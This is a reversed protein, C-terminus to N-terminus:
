DPSGMGPLQQVYRSRPLRGGPLGAASWAHFGGMVDGANKFGLQVLVAAALSSSFGDDCVVVLQQDLHTISPNRWPSDLDVRWELVTRPISLAGSIIGNRDRAEQSRTDIILAGAEAALFAERAEFRSITRRAEDLLDAITHRPHESTAVRRFRGPSFRAVSRSLSTCFPETYGGPANVWYKKSRIGGARVM